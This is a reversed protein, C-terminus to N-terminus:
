SSFIIKVEIIKPEIESNNNDIFDHINEEIMNNNYESM